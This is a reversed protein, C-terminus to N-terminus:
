SAARSVPTEAAPEFIYAYRRMAAQLGEKNFKKQETALTGFLRDFFFFCIGFNGAQRGCDDLRMHHIDHLRRASLFWRSLRSNRELRFGKLHMGDHMTGFMFYGWGMSAATFLAQCPAPVGMLRFASLVCATLIVIPLIWEMGFGALNARNGTSNFYESSPRMPRNPAYTVLHHIMHNRSLFEIRESHLLRHLWYGVFEAFVLASLITIAGNILM